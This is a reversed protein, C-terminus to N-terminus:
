KETTGASGSYAVLGMTFRKDEMKVMMREMEHQKISIPVSQSMLGTRQVLITYEGPSLSLNIKGIENTKGTAIVQHSKLDIVTIQAQAIPSGLKHVVSLNFGSQAIAVDGLISTDQQPVAKATCAFSMAAALAAGLRRSVRRIRARLGIPCDSTLITGDTRRYLRGCLRQGNSAAILQEIQASTMESFNYVNRNCEACHRSQNDGTMSEWNATCPLAIKIEPLM